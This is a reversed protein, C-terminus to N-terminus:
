KGLIQPWGTGQFKRNQHYIKTVSFTTSSVYQQQSTKPLRQCHTCTKRHIPLEHKEHSANWMECTGAWYSHQCRHYTVIYTNLDM